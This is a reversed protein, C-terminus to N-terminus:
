GKIMAMLWTVEDFHQAILADARREDLGELLAADPQAPAEPLPGSRNACVNAVSLVQSLSGPALTAPQNEHEKVALVLADDVGLTKLLAAGILAHSSHMLARLDAARQALAPFQVARWMAYFHGLDHVLGAFMAEDPEVRSAHRALVHALVAVELSHEWIGQAQIRFPEMEKHHTVQELALSMAVNNVAQQGLQIVATLLDTVRRGGRRLAASNALAVVRASLLPEGAVVRALEKHSLYAKKLAMRAGLSAEIFTPCQLNRQGLDEAIQRLFRTAVENFSEGDAMTQPM